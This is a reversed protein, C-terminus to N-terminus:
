NEEDISHYLSYLKNNKQILMYEPLLGLICTVVVFCFLYFYSLLHPNLFDYRYIAHYKSHFDKFSVEKSPVELLVSIVNRKQLAIRNDDCLFAYYEENTAIEKYVISENKFTNYYGWVFVILFSLLIFLSINFNRWSKKKTIAEGVKISDTDQIRHFFKLKNYLELPDKLLNRNECEVLSQFSLFEEKKFLDFSVDFKKQNDDYKIISPNFDRSCRCLKVDVLRCGTQLDIKILHGKWVIDSMGSCVFTGSIYILNNKIPQKNKLIELSEFNSVLSNYLNFSETPIFTIQCPRKNRKIIYPFLGIIVTTLIGIVGWM